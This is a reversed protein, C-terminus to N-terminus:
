PIRIVTEGIRVSEVEDLSVPISWHYSGNFTKRDSTPSVSGDSWGIEAGNYLYVVPEPDLGFLEEDYDYSFRLGTNTLVINKMMVPVVEETNNNLVMAETDPLAITAPPKSRDIAFDFEWSGEAVTKQKESRHGRVLDELVLHVELPTTDLEFNEHTAYSHELLVLMAGDGDLGQFKPGYSGIGGAAEVPDPSIEVSLEKFEYHERKSFRLGDVRVLVYFIDDGVTASDVTVTVEGITKSQGIEQSLHDLVAEQEETMEQGTMVGFYHGFWSQISDGYIVAVVGAGMLLMALIAAILAAPIRRHIRAGSSKGGITAAAEEIYSEDVNGLANLFHRQKM